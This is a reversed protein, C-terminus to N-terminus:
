PLDGARTSACTFVQATDCWKASAKPMAQLMPVPFGANDIPGVKSSPITGIEGTVLMAFGAPGESWQFPGFQSSWRAVMGM